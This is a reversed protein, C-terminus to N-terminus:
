VDEKLANTAITQMLTGHMRERPGGDMEVWGESIGVLALRFKTNERRLRIIESPISNVRTSNVISLRMGLESLEQKLAHELAIERETPTMTEWHPGNQISPKPSCVPCTPSVIKPLFNRETPIWCTCREMLEGREEVKDLLAILYQIRDDTKGWPLSKLYVLAREHVM